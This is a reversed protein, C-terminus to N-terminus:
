KLIQYNPTKDRYGSILSKLNDTRIFTFLDGSVTLQDTQGLLVEPKLRVILLHHHAFQRSAAIVTITWSGSSSDPLELAVFLDYKKELNGMLSSFKIPYSATVGGYTHHALSLNLNPGQGSYASFLTRISAEPQTADWAPLFGASSEMGFRDSYFGPFLEKGKFRQVQSGSSFGHATLAVPENLRRALENDLEEKTQGTLLDYRNPLSIEILGNQDSKVSFTVRNKSIGTLIDGATSFASAIKVLQSQNVSSLINNNQRIEIQEARFHAQCENADTGIWELLLESLRYRYWNQLSDKSFPVWVGEFLIGTKDRIQQVSLAPLSPLRLSFYLHQKGDPTLNVSDPVPSKQDMWLKNKQTRTSAFYDQASVPQILILFVFLFCPIKAPM